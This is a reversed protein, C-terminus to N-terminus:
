VSICWLWSFYLGSVCSHFFLSFSILEDDCAVSCSQQLVPSAQIRFREVFQERSMMNAPHGPHCDMKGVVERGDNLKVTITKLPYTGNRFQKFGTMPSDPASPGSKVKQALAIIKPDTMKEPSYWYAGPVPNYLMCAMVYPASFQAHTVSTFGEDPAWIRNVFFTDM